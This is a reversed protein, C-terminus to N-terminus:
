GDVSATSKLKLPPFVGKKGSNASPKKGSPSSLKNTSSINFQRDDEEDLSSRFTNGFGLPKNNQFNTFSGNLNLFANNNNSNNNNNNPVTNRMSNLM